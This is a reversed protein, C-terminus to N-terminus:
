QLVLSKKGKKRLSFLPNENSIREVLIEQFHFHDKWHSKDASTSRNGGGPLNRGRLWGFDVGSVQLEFLELNVFFELDPNVLRSAGPVLDQVVRGEQQGDDNSESDKRM